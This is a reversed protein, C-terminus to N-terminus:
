LHSPLNQSVFQTQNSIGFSNFIIHNQTIQPSKLKWINIFKTSYCKKKLKTNNAEKKVM